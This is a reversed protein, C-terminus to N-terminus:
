TKKLVYLRNFGFFSVQRKIIVCRARHVYEEQIYKELNRYDFGLHPGWEVVDNDRFIEIDGGNLLTMFYKFVGANKFFLGYPDKRLIKRGIFKIMGPIGTENPVAIVILGGSRCTLHVNSFANRYDGIHELTELCTVMHFSNEYKKDIANLDARIFEAHPIKRKRALDLLASQHDFGYLKWRALSPIKKQLHYLCWGDSCGFDAWFGEEEFRLSEVIHVIKKLRARHVLKDFGIGEYSQSHRFVM